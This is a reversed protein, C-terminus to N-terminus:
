DGRRYARRLLVLALVLTGLLGVLAVAFHEAM